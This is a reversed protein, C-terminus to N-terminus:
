LIARWVAIAGGVLLATIALAYLVMFAALGAAVLKTWWTDRPTPGYPEQYESFRNLAFSRPQFCEFDIERRMPLM